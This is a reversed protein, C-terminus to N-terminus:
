HSNSKRKQVGSGYRFSIDESLRHIKMAEQIPSGTLKSLEGITEAIKSLTKDKYSDEEM